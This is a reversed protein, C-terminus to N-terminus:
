LRTTRHRDAPGFAFVTDFSLISGVARRLSQLNRGANLASPVTVASRTAVSRLPGREDDRRAHRSGAPAALRQRM